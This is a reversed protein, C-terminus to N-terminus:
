RSIEPLKEPGFFIVALVLLLMLEGWGIGFFEQPVM